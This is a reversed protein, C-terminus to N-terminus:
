KGGGARFRGWVVLDRGFRGCRWDEGLGPFTEIGKGGSIPEIARVGGVFFPAITVLVWDVLGAKLFSTLVSAGGEVMVSRVGIEGLIRLLHPLSLGDAARPVRLVEAGSSRLIEELREDADEAAAILAGRPHRLVQAAGPTRLRSDLVVPRPHPGGVLRATLKPDDALVTGIGVLISDHAARLRHTLLKTEPGSLTLREDRRLAISGDLSQAYTLTVMPRSHARVIKDIDSRIEAVPDM